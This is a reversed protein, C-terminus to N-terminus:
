HELIHHGCFTSCAFYCWSFSSACCRNLSRAALYLSSMLLNSASVLTGSCRGALLWWESLAMAWLRDTTWRSVGKWGLSCLYLPSAVFGMQTPSCSCTVSNSFLFCTTTLQIIIKLWNIIFAWLLFPFHFNYSHSLCRVFFIRSPELLMYSVERDIM